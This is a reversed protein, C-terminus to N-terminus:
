IKEEYGSWGNWEHTREISIRRSTARSLTRSSPTTKLKGSNVITSSAGGRSGCKHADNSFCKNTRAGRGRGRGRRRVRQQQQQTRPPPPPLSSLSVRARVHTHGIEAGDKLQPVTIPSFYTWVNGDLTKIGDDM